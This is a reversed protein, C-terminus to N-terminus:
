RGPQVRLRKMSRKSNQFAQSLKTGYREWQLVTSANRAIQIVCITAILEQEEEMQMRPRYTDHYIGFQNSKSKEKDIDLKLAPDKLLASHLDNGDFQLPEPIMFWKHCLTALHKATRWQRRFRREHCLHKLTSLIFRSREEPHILLRPQMKLSNFFPNFM